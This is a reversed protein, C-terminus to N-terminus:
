NPIQAILNTFRADSVYNKWYTNQFLRETNSFGNKIAKELYKFANSEDKQQLYYVSRLYMWEANDPDCWEYINLAYDYAGLDNLVDPNNVASYTYLSTYNLIRKEVTENSARKKALLIKWYEIPQKFYSENVLIQQNAEYNLTTASLNMKATNVLTHTIPKLMMEKLMTAMVEKKPWDHEGKEIYMQLNQKPNAQFYEYCELFNMDETASYLITPCKLNPSQPAACCLILGNFFQSNLQLSAAMRSGGSLGTAYLHFPKKLAAKIGERLNLLVTYVDASKLGNRSDSVAMLLISRENAITKWAEIQKEGKAAPDFILWVAITDLKQASSSYYYFINAGKLVDKLLTDTKFAFAEPALVTANSLSDNVQNASSISHSQCAMLSVLLFIIIM